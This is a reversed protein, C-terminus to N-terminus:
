RSLKGMPEGASPADPPVSTRSMECIGCFAATPCASPHAYAFPVIRIALDHAV